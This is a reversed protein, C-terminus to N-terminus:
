LIAKMPCHVYLSTDVIAILVSNIVHNYPHVVLLVKLGLTAMGETVEVVQLYTLLNRFPDHQYKPKM